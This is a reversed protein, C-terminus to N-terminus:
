TTKLVYIFHDQYLEYGLLGGIVKSINKRGYILIEKKQYIMTVVNFFKVGKSLAILLLCITWPINTQMM